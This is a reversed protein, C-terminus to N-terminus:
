KEQDEISIQEIVIIEDPAQLELNYIDAVLAPFVFNGLEDVSQASVTKSQSSLLVPMGQLAELATDKRTVFGILQLLNARGTEHEVQLLISFDEASYRRPWLTTSALNRQYALRPRTPLLTAIIRRTNVSARDLLHNLADVSEQVPAHHNNSAAQRASSEVLMPDGTLFGGLVNLEASCSVCTRLHFRVALAAEPELLGLQYDGLVSNSPCDWRYLKSLLSLELRRFDALQASCRPCRTLHQEVVPRVREGALYALLEEDRVLGPESCEM